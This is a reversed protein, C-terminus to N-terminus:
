ISVSVDHGTTNRPLKAIAQQKADAFSEARVQVLKTARRGRHDVYVIQLRFTQFLSFM